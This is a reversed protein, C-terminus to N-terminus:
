RLRSVLMVILLFIIFCLLFNISQMLVPLDSIQTLTSTPM